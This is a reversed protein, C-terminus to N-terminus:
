GQPEVASDIIDQSVGEQQLLTRVQDDIWSFVMKRTEAKNQQYADWFRGENRLDQFGRDFKKELKGGWKTGQSMIRRIDDILACSLFGLMQPDLQINHPSRGRLMLALLCQRCLIWLTWMQVVRMPYHEQEFLAPHVGRVFVASQLLAESFRQSAILGLLLQQRLQPWPYRHLPWSKTQALRHMLQKITDIQTHERGRYSNQSMLFQEVLDGTESIIANIAPQTTDTTMARTPQHFRDLPSDRGRACLSCSCTFFYRAKLEEQRKDRPFTPDVYSVTVEEDKAIPRLAHVSISGYPPFGEQDSWAPIDFRLFANADCSHNLLAPRPHLILGFSDFTPNTITYSNILLMCTIRLITAESHETGCYSKIGKMAIFADQWREGGAKLLDEQHSELALLQDWESHPLLNARHQKLLRIIARATTPLIKPQLRGYLKCELRHYESWARAQCRKDCFKVVKCGSCAKLAQNNAAEPSYDLDGPSSYCYYCRNQLESTSLAVMLPRAVFIVESRPAIDHAAFIGNGRDAVQKTYVDATRIEQKLPNTM